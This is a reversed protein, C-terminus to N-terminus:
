ELEIYNIGVRKFMKEMEDTNAFIVYSSPMPRLNFIKEAVTENFGDFTISRIAFNDLIEYIGEYQETVYIFLISCILQCKFYHHFVLDYFFIETKSQLINAKSFNILKSFRCLENTSTVNHQSKNM